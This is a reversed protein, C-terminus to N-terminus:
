VLSMPVPHPGNGRLGHVEPLVEKYWRRVTGGWCGFEWVSHRDPKEFNMIALFRKRTNM